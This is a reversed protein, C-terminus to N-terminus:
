VEMTEFNVKTKLIGDKKRDELAKIRAEERLLIEYFLEEEGLNLNYFGDIIALDLAKEEDIGSVIGLGLAKEVYVKAETVIVEGIYFLGGKGRERMKIMTLAVNPKEVVKIECMSRIHAVMHELVKRRGKILIETRRKREM